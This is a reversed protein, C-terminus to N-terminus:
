PLALTAVSTSLDPVREDAPALSVDPGVARILFARDASDWTIRGDFMTREPRGLPYVAVSKTGSSSQYERYVEGPLLRITRGHATANTDRAVERVVLPEDTRNTITVWGARAPTVASAFALVLGLCKALATTNM